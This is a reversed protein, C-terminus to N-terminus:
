LQLERLQTARNFNKQFFIISILLKKKLTKTNFLIYFLFFFIFIRGQPAYRIGSLLEKLIVSFLIIKILNQFFIKM